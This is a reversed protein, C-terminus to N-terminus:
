WEKKESTEAQSTKKHSPREQSSWEGVVVEMGENLTSTELPERILNWSIWCHPLVIGCKWSWRISVTSTTKEEMETPASGEVIDLRHDKAVWCFIQYNAKREGTWHNVKLDQHIGEQKTLQQPLGRNRIKNKRKPKPQQKKRFMCRKSTRPAVKEKGQEQHGMHWAVKSYFNCIREWQWDGQDELRPTKPREDSNKLKRM